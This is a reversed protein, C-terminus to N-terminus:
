LGAAAGARTYIEHWDGADVLDRPAIWSGGVCAVNALSLYNAVNQASVGGTPCFQMDAFVMSATKLFGAGGSMEAPFFKVMRYGRGRLAMVESITQAGPLFPISADNAADLLATDHGPSVAFRAGVAAVQDLQAPTLVTGAGVLADPVGEVMAQIVDLAAPTRLTVELVSLGADVLCQALPVADDVRDVVLVPIVSVDDLLTGWPTM